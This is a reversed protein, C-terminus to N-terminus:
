IRLGLGFGFNYDSFWVQDGTSGFTPAQYFAGTIDLRVTLGRSLHYQHGTGLFLGFLDQQLFEGEPFRADRNVWTQLQGAGGSLYWDFYLIKNFVNIKAYWPVWHMLAGYESRIERIVPYVASNTAVLAKFANNSTNFGRRYFVELGLDERFYFAARPELSLTTRYPNSLGPGAMASLLLRNAKLYRRNQLVYIKKEPDLWKFSYEDAPSEGGGAQAAEAGQMWSAGILTLWLMAVLILLLKLFWARLGAREPAAAAVGTPNITGTPKELLNGHSKM